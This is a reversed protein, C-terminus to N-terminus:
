NIGIIVFQNKDRILRTYFISPVNGSSPKLIGKLFEM